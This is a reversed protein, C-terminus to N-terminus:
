QRVGEIVSVDVRTPVIRALRFGNAAFLARYEEATREKGGPLALMTLDLMKGFSPENGPELVCEVVLVRGGAPLVAHINKLIQGCREDDWDHIIHRMLYVDAGPAVKEFFNGAVCQCRDTLGAAAINPRAREIVGPLDFLIGKMAPYRKLVATLLSGNGGGVDALVSVGSLDFAEVMAATEMGHVGVMAEDFVKAQEPHQSLYEFVPVGYMHDFGPKGTQVSYLLESYARYHEEGNMVAMGWQSGPSDRRLTEGLPTLAFRRQGDETFVGQSALARLLRYLSPVHTGTAAALDEPSRPGDRLLDALGLKAAVYLAQTTWYGCLLDRMRVHPNTVKAEKDLSM